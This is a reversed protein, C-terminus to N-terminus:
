EKKKKKARLRDGPPTMTSSLHLAEVPEARVANPYPITM